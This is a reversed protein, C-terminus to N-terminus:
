INVIVEDIEGGGMGLRKRGRTKVFLYEIITNITWRGDFKNFLCVVQVMGPSIRAM